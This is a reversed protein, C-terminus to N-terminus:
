IIVASLESIAIVLSESNGLFEKLYFMTIQSFGKMPRQQRRLESINRGISASQPGAARPRSLGIEASVAHKPHMTLSSLLFFTPLFPFIRPRIRGAVSPSLRDFDQFTKDLPVASGM